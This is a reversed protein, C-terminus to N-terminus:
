FRLCACKRLTIILHSFIKFKQQKIKCTVQWNNKEQAKTKNEIFFFFTESIIPDNGSKSSELQM